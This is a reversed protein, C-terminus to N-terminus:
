SEEKTWRVQTKHNLRSIRGRAPSGVNAELALCFTIPPTEGVEMRIAELRLIADSDSDLRLRSPEGDAAEFGRGTEATGMTSLRSSSIGSLPLRVVTLTLKKNSFAVSREFKPTVVCLVIGTNNVIM